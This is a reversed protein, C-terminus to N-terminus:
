VAPNGEFESNATVKAAHRKFAVGFAIAINIMIKQNRCFRGLSRRCILSKIGNELWNDGTRFKFVKTFIALEVTKIGYNYKISHSRGERHLFIRDNNKNFLFFDGLNQM